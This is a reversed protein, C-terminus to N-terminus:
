YMKFLSHIILMPIILILYQNCYNQLKNKYEKLSMLNKKLHWIVNLYELHPIVLSKYLLLLM